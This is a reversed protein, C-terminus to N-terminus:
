KVMFLLPLTLCGLLYFCSFFVLRPRRNLLQQIARDLDKSRGELYGDFSCLFENDEIIMTGIPLGNYCVEFLEYDYEPLRNVSKIIIGKISSIIKKRVGM